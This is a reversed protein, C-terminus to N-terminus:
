NHQNEVDCKLWLKGWMGLIIVHSSQLPVEGSIKSSKLASSRSSSRSSSRCRGGKM